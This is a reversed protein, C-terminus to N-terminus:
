KLLSPNNELFELVDDLTFNPNNPYLTAFITSILEFDKQTDLSLHLKDLEINYIRKLLYKHQYQSYKKIIYPTVHEKEQQEKANFYAEKLVDFTFVEGNFGDPFMHNGFYKPGIYKEKKNKFTRILHDIYHPDVLPCDSTVRVIIDSQCILATQYYRELVNQQSGRFCKIGNQACYNSIIDDEELTSTCFIVDDAEQCRKLRDYDHQLVIKDQIKKMVKQPLRTSGMRAQIIIHTKM